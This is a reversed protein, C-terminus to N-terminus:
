VAWFFMQAIWLVRLPSCIGCVKNNQINDLVFKQATSAQPLM